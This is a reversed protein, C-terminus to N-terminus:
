YKRLVFSSFFNSIPKDSEGLLVKGRGIGYRAYGGPGDGHPSKHCIGQFLREGVNAGLGLVVAHSILDLPYDLLAALHEDHFIEDGRAAAAQGGGRGDAVGACLDDAHHGDEGVCERHRLGVESVM